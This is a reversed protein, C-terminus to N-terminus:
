ELNGQDDFRLPMPAGLVELRPNGRAEELLAESVSIQDLHATDQILVSRAQQPSFPRLALAIAEFDTPLALPLKIGWLFDSTLANIATAEPDIKGKLRETILDAMGVGIANGHTGATLDLVVIRRIEQAPQGGLRRHMGVVHPDLGAGSIEKGMQRVILVDLPDFPLTPLYSRALRLLRLDAEEIEEPLVAEVRATRHYANEVLAVGLVVPAQQLALRAAPLFNEQLGRVHIADAGVQKGLGIALMKMLGSGVEGVLISHPKVRNLLVIGDSEWAYHDCYLTYGQATTGLPVAEMSARIPCGMAEETIGYGQLVALQGAATAGGHSGMAPVIFPGAGWAKLEDVVARTIEAIRDIGRSGATVAIRKGPRIACRGAVREFAQHVAARLDPLADDVFIQRVPAYRPLLVTQLDIFRWSLPHTSM